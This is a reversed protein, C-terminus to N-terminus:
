PGRDLVIRTPGGPLVATRNKAMLVLAWENWLALAAVLLWGFPVPWHPLSVPDGLTASLRSRSCREGLLDADAVTIVTCV